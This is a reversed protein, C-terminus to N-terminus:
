RPECSGSRRQLSDDPHSIVLTIVSSIRFSPCASSTVAKIVVQMFNKPPLHASCATSSRAPPDREDCVAVPRSGNKVRETGVGVVCALAERRTGSPRHMCEHSHM